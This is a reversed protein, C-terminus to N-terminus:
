LLHEMRAEPDLPLVRDSQPRWEIRVLPSGEFRPDGEVLPGRREEVEPRHGLDLDVLEDAQEIRGRTVQRPVPRRQSLAPLALEPPHERGDARRNLAEDADPDPRDPDVAQPGSPGARELGRLHAAKTGACAARAVFAHGGPLARGHRRGTAATPM